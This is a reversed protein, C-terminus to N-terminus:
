SALLKEFASDEPELRHRALIERLPALTSEADEGIRRCEHILLEAEDARDLLFLAYGIGGYASAPRQDLHIGTSKELSTIARGLCEHRLTPHVWERKGLLIQILGIALHSSALMKRVQASADRGFEDILTRYTDISEELRNAQNLATAKNFFAKAVRERVVPDDDGDFRDILAQFSAIAEAPEDMGALLTGMNLMGMAVQERLPAAAEQGFRDILQRYAGVAKHLRDLQSLAVGQNFLAAAVQERIAPKWDRGFQDVLAQFSSVAAEPQGIRGLLAGKYLIARAMIERIESERSQGSQELLKQFSAIAAEPQGMEDLRIGKNLLAEAVQLRAELQGDEAHARIVKDHAEMANRTQEALGTDNIQRQAIGRNIFAKAVTKRIQPDTDQGYHEILHQYATIEHEPQGLKGATVGENFISRAVVDRIEPASDSGYREAVSQYMRLAEENRGLHSTSVAVQFMADLVQRRVSSEPNQKFQEILALYADIAQQHHGERAMTGAETSLSQISETTEVKGPVPERGALGAQGQAWEHYEQAYEALENGFRSSAPKTKRSAASLPAVVSAEEQVIATTLPQPAEEAVAVAAGFGTVAQEEAVPISHPQEKMPELDSDTEAEDPEDLPAEETLADTPEVGTESVDETEVAADSEIGPVDTREEASAQVSPLPTASEDGTTQIPIIEALHHLHVYASSPPELRMESDAAAVTASDIEEMYELTEGVIDGFAYGSAPPSAAPAQLQVAVSEDQREPFDAIDPQSDDATQPLPGSLANEPEIVAEFSAPEPMESESAEKRVNSAPDPAPEDSGDATQVSELAADSDALVAHIDAKDEASVTEETNESQREPPPFEPKDISKDFIAQGMHEFAEEDSDNAFSHPKNEPRGPAHLVQEDTPNEMTRLHADSQERLWATSLAASAAQKEDTAIGSAFTKQGILIAAEDVHRPGSPSATEVDDIVFPIAEDDGGTEMGADTRVPAFPEVTEVAPASEVLKGLPIFASDAPNATTSERESIQQKRLSILEQVTDSFSRQREEAEEPYFIKALTRANDWDADPSEANGAPTADAAIEEEAVFSPGDSEDPAAEAEPAISPELAEHLCEEAEFHSRAETIPGTESDQEPEADLEIRHAPETEAVPEVALATETEFVPETEIASPEEILDKVEAHEEASYDYQEILVDADGNGSSDPLTKEFAAEEHLSEEPVPEEIVVAPADEGIFSSAIDSPSPPPTGAGIEVPINILGRLAEIERYLDNSHRLLWAQARKDARRVGCVYALVGSCLALLALLGLARIGTERIETQSTTQQAVKRDLAEIKKDQENLRNTAAESLAYLDKDLSQVQANLIAQNMPDAPPSSTAASGHRAVTQAGAVFAPAIAALAILVIALFRHM